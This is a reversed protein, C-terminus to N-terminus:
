YVADRVIETIIDRKRLYDTLKFAAQDKPATLEFFRVSAASESERSVTKMACGNSRIASDIVIVAVIRYVNITDNRPVYM